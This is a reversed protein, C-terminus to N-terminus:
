ISKLLPLIEQKISNTLATLKKAGAVKEGLGTLEATICDIYSMYGNMVENKLSEGFDNLKEDFQRTMEEVTAYCAQSAAELLARKNAANLPKKKLLGYAWGGAALLPGIPGQVLLTVPISAFMINRSTKKVKEEADNNPTEISTEVAGGSLDDLARQLLRCRMDNAAVKEVFEGADAEMTNYVEDVVAQTIRQVDPNSEKWFKSWADDIYEGLSAAVRSIDKSAEIWRDIEEILSENYTSIQPTLDHKVEAALKTKLMMTNSEARLVMLEKQKAVDDRLAIIGEEELAANREINSIEAEIEAACVLFAQQIALKRLTEPDTALKEKIATSFEDSNSTFVSGGCGFNKVITNVYHLVGELDEKTGLMDTDCIVIALRPLGLFQKACMTIFNKESSDMAKTASTAIFAHDIQAFVKKWDFELFKNPSFLLVVDYKAFDPNNVTITVELPTDEKKTLMERLQEKTIECSEDGAKILRMADTEGFCITLKCARDVNILKDDSFLDVGFRANLIDLLSRLSQGLFAIRQQRTENVVTKADSFSQKIAISELPLTAEECKNLIENYEKM